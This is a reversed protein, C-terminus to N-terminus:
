AGVIFNCGFKLRNQKGDLQIERAFCLRWVRIEPFNVECELPHRSRNDQNPNPAPIPIPIPDFEWWAWDM